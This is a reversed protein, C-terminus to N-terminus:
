RAGRLRRSTWEALLSTAILIFLMWTIRADETRAASRGEMPASPGVADVLSALPTEDISTLSPPRPVLPAYAVAAVLRSWWARHAAASEDSGAMRWRWTEDYAVQMVRGANVRRAAIMAAGDRSDLVVVDPGPSSVPYGGLGSRPDASSVGGAVWVWTGM